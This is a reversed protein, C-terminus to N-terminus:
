ESFYNIIYFINKVAKIIFSDGYYNNNKNKLINLNEISNINNINNIINDFTDLPEEKKLTFNDIIGIIGFNNNNLLYNANAQKYNYFNYDEIEINAYQGWM